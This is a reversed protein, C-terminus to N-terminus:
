KPIAAALASGWKTLFTGVAGGAGGVLLLMRWGGKAESLTSLIIKVDHSMENHQQLMARMQTELVAIRERSDQDTRRDVDSM